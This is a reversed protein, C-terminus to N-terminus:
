KFDIADTPCVEACVRCSKAAEDGGEEFRRCKKLDAIIVKGNEIRLVVDGTEPGKGGAIMLNSSVNVPCAIVCNGCGNCKEGYIILGTVERKTPLMKQLKQYQGSYDPSKLVLCDDIALEGKAVKIAFAM